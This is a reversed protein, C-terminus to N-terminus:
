PESEVDPPFTGFLAMLHATNERSLKKGEEISKGMMRFYDMYYGPTSTMFFEAPETESPNAFTHIARPPVVMLEGEKADVDGEPTKFRITGKTVFFCEDHFRHWHMPPGSTGPPLGLTMCGIRNDTNSGDEYIYITMPGLVLKETNEKNCLRVPVPGRLPM